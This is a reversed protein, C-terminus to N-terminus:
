LGKKEIETLVHLAARRVEPDIDKLFPRVYPVANSGEKILLSETLERLKPNRLNGVLGPLSEEPKRSYDLNSTAKTGPNSKENNSGLFRLTGEAKPSFQAGIYYCGIMANLLLKGGKTAEEQAKNIPIKGAETLRSLFLVFLKEAQKSAEQLLQYPKTGMFNSNDQAFEPYELGVMFSGRSLKGLAEGGWESVTEESVDPFLRLKICRQGFEGLLLVVPETEKYCLDQVQDDVPYNTWKNWVEELEDETTKKKESVSKANGNSIPANKNKTIYWIPSKQGMILDQIATVFSAQDKKAIAGYNKHEFNPFSQGPVMEGVVYVEINDSFDYSLELTFCRAKTAKTSLFGKTINFVLGVFFAEPQLSPPPFQIVYLVDDHNLSQKSCSLGRDPLQDGTKRGLGNWLSKLYDNRDNRDLKKYTENTNSLALLPLTFYAFNYHQKRPTGM